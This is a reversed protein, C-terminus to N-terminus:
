PQSVMMWSVPCRSPRLCGCSADPENPATGTLASESSYVTM